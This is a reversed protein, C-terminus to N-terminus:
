RCSSGGSGLPVVHLSMRSAVTALGPLSMALQTYGIAGSIGMPGLGILIAMSCRGLHTGPTDSLVFRRICSLKEIM